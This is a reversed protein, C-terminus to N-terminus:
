PCLGEGDPSLWRNLSLQIEYLEQEHFSQSYIKNLEEQVQTKFNRIRSQDKPKTLGQELDELIGVFDNEVRKLESFFSDRTIKCIQISSFYKQSKLNMQFDIFRLMGRYLVSGNSLPTPSERLIRIAQQLDPQQGPNATPFQELLEVTEIITFITRYVQILVLFVERSDALDPNAGIYQLVKSEVDSINTGIESSFERSKKIVAILQVLDVGSRSVYASALTLRIREAADSDPTSLLPSLIEIARDPQNQDIWYQAEEVALSHDSTQPDSKNACSISLMSNWVFFVMVLTSFGQRGM